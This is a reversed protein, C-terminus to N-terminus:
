DKLSLLCQAYVASDFNYFTVKLCIQFCLLVKVTCKFHYEDEKYSATILYNYAFLNLQSIKWIPLNVVYIYCVVLYVQLM